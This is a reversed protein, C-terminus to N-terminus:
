ARICCRSCPRILASEYLEYEDRDRCSPLSTGGSGSRDLLGDLLGDLLMREADLSPDAFLADLSPDAFLADLSPDAFLADLPPDSSVICVRGLSGETLLSTVIPVRDFDTALSHEIGAVTTSLESSSISAFVSSPHGENGGGAHADLLSLDVGDHADLLSLDDVGDRADM